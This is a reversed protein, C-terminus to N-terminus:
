IVIFYTSLLIHHYTAWEILVKWFHHYFVVDLILLKVLMREGPEEKRRGQKNNSAHIVKLWWFNNMCPMLGKSFTTSTHMETDTSPDCTCEPRYLFISLYDSIPLNMRQGLKCTPSIAISQRKIMEFCYDHTSNWNSQHNNYHYRVHM